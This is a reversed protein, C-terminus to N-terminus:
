LSSDDRLAEWMESPEDDEWGPNFKMMGRTCGLFQGMDVPAASEKKAVETDVAARLAKLEEASLSSIEAKLEALSM